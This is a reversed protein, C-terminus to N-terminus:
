SASRQLIVVANVGGFGFANIQAIDVDKRKATKLVNLREAEAIPEDLGLTPPLVGHQMAGLASVLSVLGSAGSNHGTMSKIATVDVPAAREGLHHRSASCAEHGAAVAAVAWLDREKGVCM